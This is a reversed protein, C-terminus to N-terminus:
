NRPQRRRQPSLWQMHTSPWFQFTHNHHTQLCTNSDHGGFQTHHAEELGVALNNRDSDNAEFFAVNDCLDFSLGGVAVVGDLNTVSPNSVAFQGFGFDTMELLNTGNGHTMKLLETKLGNILEFKVLAENEIVEELLTIKNIDRAGGNALTELTM